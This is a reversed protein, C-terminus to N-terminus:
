LYGKKVIYERFSPISYVKDLKVQELGGVNCFVSAGEAFYYGLGALAGVGTGILLGKGVNKQFFGKKTNDAFAKDITGGKGFIANRTDQLSMATEIIDEITEESSPEVEVKKDETYKSAEAIARNLATVAARAQLLINEHDNPQVNNAIEPLIKKLDADSCTLKENLYMQTIKVSDIDSFKVSGDSKVVIYNLIEGISNKHTGNTTFTWKNLFTRLSANIINNGTLSALFDARAKDAQITADERVEGSGQSDRFYCMGQGINNKNSKDGIYFMEGSPNKSAVKTVYPNNFDTQETYGASDGGCDAKTTTPKHINQFQCYLYDYSYGDYDCTLEKSIKIRGWKMSGNVELSYLDRFMQMACVNILDRAGKEWGELSAKLDRIGQNTTVNYVAGNFTVDQSSVASSNSNEYNDLATGINKELAKKIREDRKKQNNDIIAGIGAGIGASGAVMVPIVWQSTRRMASINEFANANCKLLNGMPAWAVVDQGDKRIVGSWNHAVVPILCQYTEEEFVAQHADAYIGLCANRATRVSVGLTPIIYDDPDDPQKQLNGDADVIFKNDNAPDVLLTNGNEDVTVRLENNTVPSYRKSSASVTAVTAASAPTTAVATNSVQAHSVFAGAISGPRARSAPAADAFGALIISIAIFSTLYRM